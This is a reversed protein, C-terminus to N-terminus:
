VQSMKIITSFLSRQHPDYSLFVLNSSCKLHSSVHFHSKLENSILWVSTRNLIRSKYCIILYSNVFSYVTQILGLAGLAVWTFVKMGNPEIWVFFWKKEFNINLKYEIIVKNKLEFIQRFFKKPFNRPFNKKEFNRFRFYPLKSFHTIKMWFDSNGATKPLKLLNSSIQIIFIQM